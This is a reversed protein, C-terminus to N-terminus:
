RLADNKGLQIQNLMRSNQKQGSAMSTMSGIGQAELLEMSESVISDKSDEPIQSPMQELLYDLKNQHDLGARYSDIRYSPDFDSLSMAPKNKLNTAWDAKM